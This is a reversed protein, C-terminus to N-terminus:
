ENKYEKKTNECSTDAWYTGYGHSGWIEIQTKACSKCTRKDRYKNYQWKHKHNM